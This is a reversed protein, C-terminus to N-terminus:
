IDSEITFIQTSVDATGVADGSTVAEFLVKTHPPVIIRRDQTFFSNRTETLSERNGSNDIYVSAYHINFDRVGTVTANVNGVIGANGVQNVLACNLPTGLTTATGGTYSWTNRNSGEIYAYLQYTYKGDTIDSFNLLIVLDEVTVQKDGTVLVTHYTNGIPVALRENEGAYYEGEIMAIEERTTGSLELIAGLDDGSKVPFGPYINKQYKPMIFGM